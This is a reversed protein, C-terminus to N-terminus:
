SENSDTTHRLIVRQEAGEIEVVIESQWFVSGEITEPRSLEFKKSEEDRTMTRGGFEISRIREFREPVISLVGDPNLWMRIRGIGEIEKDIVRSGSDSSAALRMDRNFPRVVGRTTKIAPSGDVGSDGLGRVRESCLACAELHRAFDLEPSHGFAHDSADQEGFGWACVTYSGPRVHEAEVYELIEYFLSAERSMSADRWNRVNAQALGIGYPALERWHCRISRQWLENVSNATSLPGAIVFPYRLLSAARNMAAVAAADASWTLWLDARREEGIEGDSDIAKTVIAVPDRQELDKCARLVTEIALLEGPPSAEKFCSLMGVASWARLASGPSSLDHTSEALVDEWTRIELEAFDDRTM